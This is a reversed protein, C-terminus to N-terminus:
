GRLMEREREEKTNEKGIAKKIGIERKREREREKGIRRVVRVTLKKREM